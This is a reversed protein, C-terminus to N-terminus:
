RIRRISRKPARTERVDRELMREMADFRAGWAQRSEAVWREADDLGHATLTCVKARRDTPSVAIRLLGADALVRLHKSIAPLTARFQAALRSVTEPGSELRHLLTRRTPASLAFFVRDLALTDAM